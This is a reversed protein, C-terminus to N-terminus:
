VVEYLESIMVRGHKAHILSKTFSFFFEIVINGFTYIFSCYLGKYQM